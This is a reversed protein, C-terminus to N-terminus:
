QGAAAIAKIHSEPIMSKGYAIHCKVCTFKADKRRADVEYNLIGGDDTTATIHCMNCSAVPVKKTAPDLTKMAAVNHCTACDLEAHSSFEHRFTASSDRRRWALLMIRDEIKMPAATKADFDTKGLPAALKHCTACDTPAPLIGTDTSHCTFCTTHGIPATKFTGKKLWFADGLKAPQPTVFEDDSSGQPKYTQHCVACSDASGERRIRANVFLTKNFPKEIENQSVIDIHKDHPFSIQFDPTASKGKPSQDFIERPNPFPHRPAGQPTGSLHCITCIAPKAGNFFQQRHCSLCSEHRPYDTVDPFAGEKRVSKWNASSFKHCSDCKMKHKAHPFESYRTPRARNTTRRTRAKTSKQANAVFIEPMLSSYFIGGAFIGAFLIILRLRAKKIKKSQFQKM